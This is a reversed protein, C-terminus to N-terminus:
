DEKELLQTIRQRSLDVLRGLELHSASEINAERLEQIFERRSKEYLSKHRRMIKLKNLISNRRAERIM